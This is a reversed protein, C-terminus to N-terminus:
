RQASQVKHFDLDHFDFSFDTRPSVAKMTMGEIEGDYGLSFRVYADAILSRDQWRVVFIGRGNHELSGELGETRSFKLILRDGEQRITADGRWADRYTGVYASLPLPPAGASKADAGGARAELERFQVEQKEARQKLLAVWDQEKPKQQSRAREGALAYAQLLQMTIASLAEGSQQNTLVIVGLNLEPLLSVHTVMGLVGGSHSVRKYGNFDEVGWGLAYARFHTRTLATAEPSVPLVTQASWMQAHQETSFLTGGDPTKGDALQTAVWKAMGTVNCQMSGAPAVATVDDPKVVTLKGGVPVHPAAINNTGQLRRLVVACPTMALRQLIRQEVFDEWSTGTVAPVIEGAVAYLLNDYAFESRFSSVVPLHRLNQMLEARTFDTNPFVMLDGAGLGLGSRHTLLDRITFERTVYPDALRFQPLHDIVRDDWRIKGEDALIGLAAVTFAKTNSGIAFVTDPDVREAKGVARVGYGKGFVLRGDKVIGVAVGPVSFTEMARGVIRDIDADRAGSPRQASQAWASCMAGTVLFLAAFVPKASQM